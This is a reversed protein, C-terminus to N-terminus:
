FIDKVDVSSLTSLKNEKYFIYFDGFTLKESVSRLPSKM